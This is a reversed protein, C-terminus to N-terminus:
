LHLTYNVSKPSLWCARCGTAGRGPGDPDSDAGRCTPGKEVAYARCDWDFAVGEAEEKESKEFVTSAYGWGERSSLEPGHQNIHYASPRIAFNDWTEIGGPAVLGNEQEIFEVWGDVAWMRTPAWFWIPDPHGKGWRAVTGDPNFKLGKGGVRHHFYLTVQKWARFYAKDFFDGSDHLRFFRKDGWQKPEPDVTKGGKSRGGALMFDANEIAKIMVRTFESVGSNRKKDRVAARAWAYRMLQAFQVTSTSYQGGEAYCFECIAKTVEVGNARPNQGRNENLVRLVTTSKTERKERSVISQGAEAGPCAGGMAIAGAPLSFSPAGMKSTWSLLTAQSPPAYPNWTPGPALRDTKVVYEIQSGRGKTSISIKAGQIGDRIVKRLWATNLLGAHAEQAVAEPTPCSEEDLSGLASGAACEWYRSQLETTEDEEALHPLIAAM